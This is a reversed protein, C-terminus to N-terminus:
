PVLVGCDSPESGTCANLGAWLGAPTVTCDSQSRTYTGVELETEVPHYCTTESGILHNRHGKGKSSVIISRMELGNGSDTCGCHMITQKPPPAATATVSMGVLAVAGLIIVIKKMM